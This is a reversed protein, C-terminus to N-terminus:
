VAFCPVIGLSFSSGLIGSGGNETVTCFKGASDAGPSRSWCEVAVDTSEANHVVHSNSQYYSYRSQFSSEYTNCYRQYQYLDMEYPSLLWTYDTTATVFKSQSGGGGGTNDTYKQVTVMEARLEAPLAAMLNNTGPSLPTNNNGLTQKRMFSNKWGGDSSDVASMKFAGYKVQYGACLAVLTGGIKGLQFHTRNDGERNSNHNFGIIFADVTLDFNNGGIAGSIHVPKTDGVDWYNSAMGSASIDHIVAWSNESLTYSPGTYEEAVAITYEGYYPGLEVSGTYSTGSASATVTYTTNQQDVFVYDICSAPVYGSYVPGSSSSVTYPQNVLAGPFTITLRSRGSTQSDGTIGCVASDSRTDSIDSSAISTVSPGVYITCFGLEYVSTSREIAPPEPETAPIGTKAVIEVSNNEATYRAVIRDYRGMTAHSAELTIDIPETSAVSFGMFDDPKMWGLGASVTVTMGEKASVIFDDYYSNVGSSRFSFYTQADEANYTINNLPYAIISM